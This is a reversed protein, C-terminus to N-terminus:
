INGLEIDLSKSTGNNDARSTRKMSNGQENTAKKRKSARLEPNYLPHTFISIIEDAEIRCKDNELQLFYNFRSVIIPVPLAVFIIGTIACLAGSLKGILTKPVEDGYGVSTITVIAWWFSGIVSKFDTCKPLGDQEEKTMNNYITKNEYLPCNELLSMESFYGITAFFLVAVFLFVFLVLIESISHRLALGLAILGRFHKSLKFIRFIKTFRIIRIILLVQANSTVMLELYFPIISMIDVWNLINKGFDLKKPCVCLRCLLEISFWAVCITELLFFITEYGGKMDPVYRYNGKDIDSFRPLSKLCILAISTLICGLDFFAIGKAIRSSNPDELAQWIKEKMTDATTPKRVCFPQELKNIIRSGLQYFRAEELFVLPHITTPLSLLGGSQYYSLISSFATRHRDLFYMNSSKYYYQEIGEGGLLTSPFRKLTSMRTEYVVGGVNIKVIDDFSLEEPFEKMVGNLRRQDDIVFTFGKEKLLTKLKKRPEGDDVSEDPEASHNTAEKPPKQNKNKHLELLRLNTLRRLRNKIHDTVDTRRSTESETDENEKALSARISLM